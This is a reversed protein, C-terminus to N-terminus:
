LDAKVVAGEATRPQTMGTAVRGSRRASDMAAITATVSDTVTRRHKMMAKYSPLAAGSGAATGAVAASSDSPSDSRRRSWLPNTVTSVGSEELQRRAGSQVADSAALDAISARAARLPNLTARIDADDDL